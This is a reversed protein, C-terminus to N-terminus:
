QEVQQALTPARCRFPRGSRQRRDSGEERVAIWFTSGPQWSEKDAILDICSNGYDHKPTPFITPSSNPQSGALGLAPVTRNGLTQCAKLVPIRGRRM